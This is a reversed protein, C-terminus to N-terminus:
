ERNKKSLIMNNRESFLSKHPEISQLAKLNKWMVGATLETYPHQEDQILLHQIDPINQNWECLEEQKKLEGIIGSEIMRKGIQKYGIFWHM